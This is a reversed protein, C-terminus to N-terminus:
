FSKKELKKLLKMPNTAAGRGKGKRYEFHLMPSIKGIGRVHGMYGVLDGKNVKDNRSVGRVKKGTIEGYVVTKKLSPYYIYVAFTNKYFKKHGRVVIGKGISIIPDNKAGYIDSAKHYRRFKRPCVGKIRAVDCRESGYVRAGKTFHYFGTPPKRKTPFVLSGAVASAAKATLGKRVLINKKVRKCKAKM